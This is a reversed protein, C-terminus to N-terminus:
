EPVTYEIKKLGYNNHFRDILGTEKINRDPSTRTMINSVLYEYLIESFDEIFYKINNDWNYYVSKEGTSPDYKYADIVLGHEFKYIVKEASEYNFSDACSWIGNPKGDADFEFTYTKGGLRVGKLIGKSGIINGNKVALALTEQKNKLPEMIGKIYLSDQMLGDRYHTRCTYVVKNNRKDFIEYTWTGDRKDNKYHGKEVGYYPMIGSAPYKSVWSGDFIRGDETEFYQYTVDELITKYNSLKSNAINFEGHYTKREQAGATMVSLLLM